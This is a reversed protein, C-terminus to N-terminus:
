KITKRIYSVSKVCYYGQNNFVKNVLECESDTFIKHCKPDPCLRPSSSNNNCYNNLCSVHFNHGCDTRFITLHKNNIDSFKENCIKCTSNENLDWSPYNQHNIYYICAKIGGIIKTSRIRKKSLRYTKNKRSIRNRKKKYTFSM